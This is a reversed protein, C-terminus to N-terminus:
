TVHQLPVDHLHKTNLESKECNKSAPNGGSVITPCNSPGTTLPTGASPLNRESSTYLKVRTVREHRQERQKYIVLPTMRLIQYIGVSFQPKVDAFSLQRTCYSLAGQLFAYVNCNKKKVPFENLSLNLQSFNTTGDHAYINILLKICYWDSIYRVWANTPPKACYLSALQTHLLLSFFFTYKGHM